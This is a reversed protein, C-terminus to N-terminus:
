PSSGTRGPRARCRRTGDTVSRTIEPMQHLGPLSDLRYYGMINQRESDPPPNDPYAEVLDLVFGGNHNALQTAVHPVEHHPDFTMHREDTVVQFFDKGREDRNSRRATPDIGDLSDRGEKGDYVESMCGLMQDFSHNELILVVVHEINDIASM